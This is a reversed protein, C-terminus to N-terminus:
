PEVQLKLIAGSKGNLRFSIQHEAPVFKKLTMLDRYAGSAEIAVTQEQWDNNLVVIISNTNIDPIATVQGTLDRVNILRGQDDRGTQGTQTAQNQRGFGGGGFGGGGGGGGGFGGGFGGQAFVQTALQGSAANPDQMDLNMNSMDASVTPSSPGSRGLQSPGGAGGGGTLLNM